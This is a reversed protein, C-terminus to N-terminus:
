KLTEGPTMELIEVGMGEVLKKLEGPTGTLAPFTAYHMPIVTKPRLLQCAYAAERPGMTYFDGIPLMAIEPTYLEHIIHMDGFIATDGAHYVKVGNEFEIVYGCPEAGYVVKGGDDIGSSHDAHVMTVRMEAVTQTGGKNMGAGNKLGKSQLWSVLDYVGVVTCGTKKAIDLADGLHDGHGHTILMVDCADVKKLEKPCRPNDKLFPDILVRKGSPTEFGFASHGYYTIKLGNLTM